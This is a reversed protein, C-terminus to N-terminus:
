RNCLLESENIAIYIKAVTAVYLDPSNLCMSHYLRTHTERNASSDEPGIQIYTMKPADNTRTMLTTMMMNAM